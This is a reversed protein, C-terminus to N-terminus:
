LKCVRQVEEDSANMDGWRINEAITGSFLLNKQLVVSVQNRLTELDYERVDVGGIKVSGEAVDYLRSILNVLTTKSSGTSGIIGVTEGSKIHLDIDSLAYKEANKNM